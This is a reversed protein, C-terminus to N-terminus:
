VVKLASPPVVQYEVQWCMHSTVPPKGRITSPTYIDLMVIDVHGALLTEDLSICDVTKAM